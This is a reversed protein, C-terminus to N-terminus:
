RFLHSLPHLLYEMSDLLFKQPLRDFEESNKPELSLICERVDSTGM